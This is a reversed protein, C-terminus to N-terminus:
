YFIKFDPTIVEEPSENSKFDLRTADLLMQTGWLYVDDPLFEHVLQERLISSESQM